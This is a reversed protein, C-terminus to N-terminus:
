PHRDLNGGQEIRLLSRTAWPLNLGGSMM